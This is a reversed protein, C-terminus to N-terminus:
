GHAKGKYLAAVRRAAAACRQRLWKPSLVQAHPGLRLVWRVLADPRQTRVALTASGDRHPRLVGERPPNDRLMWAVTADLRIRVSHTRGREPLAWEKRGLHLGLDFGEPPEFDPHEDGAHVHSPAGRFRDLRFSRIEGRDHDRGVLYWHGDHFGAGYPDVTREAAADRSIAYYRFRITKRDAVASVVAALHEPQGAGMPRPEATYLVQEEAAALLDPADGAAYSLKRIASRLHEALEAPLGPEAIQGILALMTADAPALDLPPLFCDVNQIFYGDNGFEDGATYDIPIGMGRLEAKDREFRRELTKDAAPDNYGVVQGKIVAWPVPAKVRLLFATLDLLREIRSIKSM